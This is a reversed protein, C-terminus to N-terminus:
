LLSRARGIGQALALGTIVVALIAIFSLAQRTLWIEGPRGVAVVMADRAAVLWTGIGITFLVLAPWGIDVLALVVAAIVGFASIVAIATGRARDGVKILGLGPAILSWRLADRPDFDRRRPTETFTDFISRYCTLCETNSVPNPTGCFRCEWGSAAPRSEIYHVTEAAVRELPLQAAAVAEETEVAPDTAAGTFPTYCQGCWPAGVRNTADCSPCNITELAMALAYVPAVRRLTGM